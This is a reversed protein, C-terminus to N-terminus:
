FTTRGTSVTGRRRQVDLANDVYGAVVQPVSNSAPFSSRTRWFWGETAHGTRLMLVSAAGTITSRVASTVRPDAATTDIDAVLLPGLYVRGRRRAPAIGSTFASHFSLVVALEHPLPAGAGPPSIPKIQDVLPQRPEPQDLDFTKMRVSSHDIAPAFISAISSYFTALATHWNGIKTEISPGVLGDDGMHWTNTVVDAGVATDMPIAVQTNYDPM